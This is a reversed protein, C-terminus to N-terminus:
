LGNTYWCRVMYVARRNIVEPVAFSSLLLYSTFDALQYSYGDSNFYYYRRWRYSIILFDEQPKHFEIVVSVNPTQIIVADIARAYIVNGVNKGHM